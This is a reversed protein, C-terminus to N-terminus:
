NRQSKEFAPTIGIVMGISPANGEKFAFAQAV